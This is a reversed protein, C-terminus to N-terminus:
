ELIDLNSLLDMPFLALKSGNLLNQSIKDDSERQGKLQHCGGRGKYRRVCDETGIHRVFSRGKSPDVLKIGNEPRPNHYTTIM